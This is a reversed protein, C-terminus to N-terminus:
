DHRWAECEDAPTDADLPDFPAPVLWMPLGIDLLATCDGAADFHVCNGCTKLISEGM